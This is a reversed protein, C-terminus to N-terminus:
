FSEAWQFVLTAEAPTIRTLTVGSRGVAEQAFPAFTEGAKAWGQYAKGECRVEFHGSKGDESAVLFRVLLQKNKPATTAEGVRLVRVAAMHRCGHGVGGPPTCGTALGVIAISVIRWCTALRTM